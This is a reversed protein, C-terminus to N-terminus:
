SYPYLARNNWIKNFTVQSSAYVLQTLNNSGDYFAKRIQWKESGVTAIENALGIYLPDNNANYEIRLQLNPRQSGTNISGDNNVQMTVNTNEDAIAEPM